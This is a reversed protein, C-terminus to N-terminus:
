DKGQYGRGATSRKPRGGSSKGTDRGRAPAPAARKAPKKTEEESADEEEEADEEDEGEEEPLEEDGDPKLLFQFIREAVEEKSGKSDLELIEATQALKKADMKEAAALRKKYEDSDAEFEFGDFKKLNKKMVPAKGEKEYIILHLTQLADMKTKVINADILAIAGLPKKAAATPKKEGNKAAVKAEPKPKEKGEKASVPAEKKAAAKPKADGDAEDEDEEEEGLEDEPEEEEEEDEEDDDKKKAKSKSKPDAAAVAKKPKAKEDASSLRKM